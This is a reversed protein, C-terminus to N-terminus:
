NKILRKTAVSNESIVKVFYIGASWDQVNINATQGSLVQSMINQGLTNTIELKINKLHSTNELSVNFEDSSPNPYIKFDISSLDFTENSLTTTTVVTGGRNGDMHGMYSHFGAGNAWILPFSTETTPFIFDNSDGTNIPRTAVVTRVGGSVNDSVVSWDQSSDVNPQQYGGTFSCDEFGEDSYLVIDDGNNGMSGGQAVGIGVGFWKDSDATLTLTVQDTATEIDFKVTFNISNNLSVTGTSLVQAHMPLYMLLILLSLFTIKQM